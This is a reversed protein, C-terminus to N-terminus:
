YREILYEIDPDLIDFSHEMYFAVREYLMWINFAAFVSVGTILYWKMALGKGKSMQYHWVGEKLRLFAKQSDYLNEIGQNANMRLLFPYNM